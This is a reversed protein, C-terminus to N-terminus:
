ILLARRNPPMENHEGCKGCKIVIDTVQKYGMNVLLPMSCSGCVYNLEGDSSMWPGEQTLAIVGGGTPKPIVTMIVTAM